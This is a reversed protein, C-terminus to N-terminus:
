EQPALRDPQSSRALRFALPRVRPPLLGAIILRVDAEEVGDRACLVMRLVIPESLLDDLSPEENRTFQGSACRFPM